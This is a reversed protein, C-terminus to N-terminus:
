ELEEQKVAVPCNTLRQFKLQSRLEEFTCEVPAWVVLSTNRSLRQLKRRVKFLVTQSVLGALPEHYHSAITGAITAAQSEAGTLNFFYQLNRASSVVIDVTAAPEVFQQGPAVTALLFGLRASGCQIAVITAHVKYVTPDAADIENLSELGGSEEIADGMSIEPNLSVEYEDPESFESDDDNDSDIDSSIMSLLDDETISPALKITNGYKVLPFCHLYSAYNWQLASQSAKEMALQQLAGLHTQEVNSLSGKMDVAIPVCERVIANLKGNFLKMKVSLKCLVGRHSVNHNGGRRMNALTTGYIAELRKDFEQFRNAYMMTRFCDKETFRKDFDVLFGDFIFKQPISENTTFDTFILDNYGRGEDRNAILLGFMTVFKPKADNLLVDQFKLLPDNTSVPSQAVKSLRKPIPTLEVPSSMTNINTRSLVTFKNLQWRSTFLDESLEVRGMEIEISVQINLLLKNLSKSDTLISGFLEQIRTSGVVVVDLCNVNPILQINKKNKHMYRWSDPILYIHLTENPLESLDQFKHPFIAVFHGKMTKSDGVQPNDPNLKRQKPAPLELDQLDIQSSMPLQTDLATDFSEQDPDSKLVLRDHAFMPNQSLSTHTRLSALLESLEDPLSTILEKFSFSHDQQADWNNLTNLIALVQYEGSRALQTVVQLSLPKIDHLTQDVQVVRVFCLKQHHIDNYQFPQTDFVLDINFYRCVLSTIMKSPLFDHGNHNICLQSPGMLPTLFHLKFTNDALSVATLLVISNM